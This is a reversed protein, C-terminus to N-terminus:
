PGLSAILVRDQGVSVRLNEGSEAAVKFGSRTKVGWNLVTSSVALWVEEGHGIRATQEYRRYGAPGAGWDADAVRTSGAADYSLEPKMSVIMGGVCNGRARTRM